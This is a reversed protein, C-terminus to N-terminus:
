TTKKINCNKPMKETKEPKQSHKRPRNSEQIPTIEAIIKRIYTHPRKRSKFDKRIAKNIAILPNGKSVQLSKNGKHSEKSPKRFKPLNRSAINKSSRKAIQIPKMEPNSPNKVINKQSIKLTQPPKRPIPIHPSPKLTHFYLSTHCQGLIFM